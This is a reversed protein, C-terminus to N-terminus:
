RFTRPNIVGEGVLRKIREIAKNCADRVNTPSCKLREAIEYNTLIGKDTFGLALTFVTKERETLHRRIKKFIAELEYEPKDERHVIATIDIDELCLCSPVSNSGYRTTNMNPTVLSLNKRFDQWFASEFSIKKRESKLVAVMASEFADQMYDNEEYPSYMYYKGITKKILGENSRVWDVAESFDM